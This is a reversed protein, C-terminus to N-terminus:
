DIKVNQENNYDTQCTWLRKGLQNEMVLGYGRGLSTRWLLDMVEEWALEGYCTWLSKGFQNEM